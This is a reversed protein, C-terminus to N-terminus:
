SGTGQSGDTKKALSKIAQAKADGTNDDGWAPNGYTAAVQAKTGLWGAKALKEYFNGSGNDDSPM